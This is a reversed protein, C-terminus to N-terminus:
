SHLRLVAPAAFKKLEAARPAVQRRGTDEEKDQRRTACGATYRKKTKPEAACAVVQRHDTDEVEYQHRTARGAV